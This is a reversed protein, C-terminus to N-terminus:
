TSTSMRGDATLHLIFDAQAFIDYRITGSTSAGASANDAGNAVEIRTRKIECICPLARDSLNIGAEVATKAFGSFGYPAVFMSKTQGRRNTTGHAERGQFTTGADTATTFDPGDLVCQPGLKLTEENIWSNHSVNGLVGVCKRIESYLEGKNDKDVKISQQPYQMSGIRFLYETM